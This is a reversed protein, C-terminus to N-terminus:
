MARSYTRLVAQRAHMHGEAGGPPPVHVSQRSRAHKCTTPLGSAPQQQQQQAQCPQTQQTHSPGAVGHLNQPGRLARRGSLRTVAGGMQSRRRVGGGRNQRRGARSAWSIPSFPAQAANRPDRLPKSPIQPTRPHRHAPAHTPQTPRPCVVSQGPLQAMEEQM